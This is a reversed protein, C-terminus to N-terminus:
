GIKRLRASLEMELREKAYPGECIEKVMEAGAPFDHEFVRQPDQPNRCVNDLTRGMWESFTWASFLLRTIM